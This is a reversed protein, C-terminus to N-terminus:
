SSKFKFTKREKFEERKGKNWQNVPRLYGVIRSYVETQANCTPCSFHEGSIYGHAPCVSFTPTITFYPLHYNTCVKHVLNKVTEIDRIQEGAFLHLVTGGSYKGQIEDQLDLAEFIDDTYNVPLQTSNTYYPEAKKERYEKENACIIDPFKRKDIRALSYSTGEAPTAELNYNNGTEKQFEILKDRMFGLVKLAFNHGKEMAINEGFLNLCAENMGILGITSFHNKWYEGFRNKMNRLYYKIYPYLDEQTFRELIGRKIELSEKALIMLKELRKIFDAEDSAFYGLRPLNLTVVGISGTLPSAGFLGGGRKELARNDIRLRCCMSRSDEPKMDSSVFNSFYPLGYKATIKWLGDLNHDNWSFDRTINYTPIPFTNHVLFQNAVFNESETSFDYVMGNVTKTREIKKVRSLLLNDKEIEKLASPIEIKLKEGYEIVKKVRELSTSAHIEIGFKKFIRNKTNKYKRGLSDCYYVEKKLIEEVVKELGSEKTPIKSITHSNKPELEKNQWINIRWRSRGQWNYETLTHFVDLQKLLTSVGYILERSISNVIVDKTIWADGRFYATLFIKKMECPLEFIIEPVRKERNNGIEFIETIIKRLLKSHIRIEILSREKISRFVIDIEPWIKKVLNGVYSAIEKEKKLNFGLSIGGYKKNTEASGEACYWGLFEVLGNSIVLKNRVKIASGSLNLKTKSLDFDELNSAINRLPFVEIQCYNKYIRKGYNRKHTVIRTEKHIKGQKLVNRIYIGEEKRKKVFEEALSIESLKSEGPPIKKPSMLYDKIKLKSAEFSQIQGDKLVLISHSPTVKISFGGQTWIRLLNDLPHRVLFNIKQWDIKGEKLGLCKIDLDEVNLVQSNNEKIFIPRRKEMLRDIYEGIRVLKIKESNKIPCFCDGDISFPRAKADGELMVELFAKNFLNLEEQFEKYTEKQPKGGIIVAQGQYYEPVTLDLTINTFPSQFGVRTPVNINFIFEQLAQKVEKYNLGDYRIFPALLSDFNSFAQAGAAEGQLTYFFNVVQGLASRFHKPPSSEIKGKAGKFGENLLDFLDWGVCNHSWIGNVILTNSDTTIDYIFKDPIKTTENNLIKHWADRTEDQWAKKSPKAVEYRESFLNLGKIKRFTLGYLPYNQVIKRGKYMRVSGEGEINRDRPTFGFLSMAVYLQELLTRSTIRVSLSTKSTEISGDGDIIGGILGKIFEKNYTLLKIPLTKNKSGPKIKFVESFVFKLFPNKIILEWRNRRKQLYGSMGNEILGENAKLLLRKDKQCLSVTVSGNKDYSLYGEALTFGCFYGFKQTLNIKRPVIFGCTHLFGEKKKDLSIGKIPEGNFYINSGKWEAKKIETLLDIEKLYFLNEKQLLKSLNVTFTRDDKNVSFAPIERKEVIMPHNDTVIVSRGGRNKIFHMQRDKRKKVVRKVRVWGNKDLVYIDKPYKAFAMDKHSLLREKADILEYMKEFSVLSIVGKIKAVVVEKGYYTYVSLINLDHIHFDGKLQADRIESPYIKNTWYVKSIDSSIYNNLGQLSFSMNSNENVRWDLRQLYQDILDVNAKNTIERMKTHQDRYIIYAKATKRYPSSLLIEEVIDQIEEVTPIRRVVTQQALNLVKLCLKQAAKEDFENTAEGAKLLAETIRQSDFKVIRGDRKKVKRFM